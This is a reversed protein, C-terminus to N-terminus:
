AGLEKVLMQELAERRAGYLSNVREGGKFVQFNPLATVGCSMAVDGLEDSDVQVFLASTRHKAALQQFFPAIKQCPGCWAATFDVVVALESERSLQMAAEWAEDSLLPVVGGCQRRLSAPTVEDAKGEAPDGAPPASRPASTAGDSAEKAAGDSRAPAMPADRKAMPPDRKAKWGIRDWVHTQMWDQFSKYCGIVTAQTSPSLRKWVPRAIYALIPLLATIPICVPGICVLPM